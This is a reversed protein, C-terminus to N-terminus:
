WYCYLVAHFLISEQSFFLSSCIPLSHSKSFLTSSSVVFLSILVLFFDSKLHFFYTTKRLVGAISYPSPFVSLPVDFFCYCNTNSCLFPVYSKILLSICFCLKVFFLYLAIHSLITSKSINLIFVTQYTLLISLTACKMITFHSSKYM